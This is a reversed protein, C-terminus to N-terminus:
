AALGFAQGTLHAVIPLGTVVVALVLTALTGSVDPLALRGPAFAELRPTDTKAM